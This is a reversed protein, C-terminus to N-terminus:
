GKSYYMNTMTNMPHYHTEGVACDFCSSNTSCSGFIHCFSKKVRLVVGLLSCGSHLISWINSYYMNTMSNMPHYHIDGVACDFCSSNTSCSGFIHCFSKKVRLVVGLLSCGSHLISWINSYYMNNMSNMPHYHIDGVACGFCTSKTSCCDFIHCFSQKVRLVVGLLSCGSHLISWRNSYYMNPISNIPHYHTEGVTCCFCTSAVVFNSAISRKETL